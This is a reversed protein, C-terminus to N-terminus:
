VKTEDLKFDGCWDNAFVVPYGENSVPAHRRCRGIILHTKGDDPAEKEAFFMCKKCVRGKGRDAWNDRGM